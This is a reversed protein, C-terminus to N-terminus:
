IQWKWMRSLQKGNKQKRRWCFMKGNKPPIVVEMPIDVVPEKEEQPVIKIEQEELVGVETTSSSEKISEVETDKNLNSARIIEAATTSSRTVRPENPQQRKLYSNYPVELLEGLNDVEQRVMDRISELSALQLGGATPFSEKFLLEIDAATQRPKTTKLPQFNTERKIGREGKVVCYDGVGPKMMAGVWLM